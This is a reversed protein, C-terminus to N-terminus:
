ATPCRAPVQGSRAPRTGHPWACRASCPVRDWLSTRRSVSPRGGREYPPDARRHRLRRWLPCGAPQGDAVQPLDEARGLRLDRRARPAGSGSAMSAATAACPPVIATRSTENSTLGPSTKTTMPRDPLPLDVSTRQRVRSISGVSPSTSRSPSSMRAALGSGAARAAVSSTRSPTGASRGAGGGAPGRCCRTRAPAGRRTSTADAHLARPRHEVQDAELPQGVAIGLLQGTALLLPDPRARASAPSGSTMSRSSGNLARSGSIRRSMCFSTM